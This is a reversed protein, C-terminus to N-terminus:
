NFTRKLDAREIFRRDHNKIQEPSKTAVKKKLIGENRYLNSLKSATFGKLKIEESIQAAREDLNM